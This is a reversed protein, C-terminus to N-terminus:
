QFLIERTKDNMRSYCDLKLSDFVAKGMVSATPIAYKKLCPFDEKWKDICAKELEETETWNLSLKGDLDEPYRYGTSPHQHYANLRLKGYTAKHIATPLGRLNNPKLKHYKHLYDVIGNLNTKGVYYIAGTEMMGILEQPTPAPNDKLYEAEQHEKIREFDEQTPEGECGALCDWEYHLDKQKFMAKPHKIIPCDDTDLEGGEKSYGGDITEGDVASPYFGGWGHKGGACFKNLMTDGKKVFYGHNDVVKVVVRADRSKKNGHFENNKDYVLMLDGFEDFVMLNLKMWMCLKVIDEITMSNYIEGERYKPPVLDILRLEPMVEKIAEYDELEIPKLICNDLNKKNMFDKYLVLWEDYQPPKNECYWKIKDFSNSAKTGDPLKQERSPAVEVYKKFHKEERFTQYFYQFGCSALHTKNDKTFTLTNESDPRFYECTDYKIAPPASLFIRDLKIFTQANIDAVQNATRAVFYEAEIGGWGGYNDDVFKAVGDPVVIVVPPSGDLEAKLLGIGDNKAVELRIIIEDRIQRRIADAPNEGEAITIELKEAEDFLNDISTFSREGTAIDEIEIGGVKVRPIIEITRSM